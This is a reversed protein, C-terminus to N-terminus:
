AAPTQRLKRRLFRENVCACKTASFPDAGESAFRRGVNRSRNSIKRAAKNLDTLERQLKKKHLHDEGSKEKVLSEGDHRLLRFWPTGHMNSERFPLKDARIVAVVEQQTLGFEQRASKDSLTAEKRSWISEM